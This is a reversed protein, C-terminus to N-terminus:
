NKEYKANEYHSLQQQIFISSLTKFLYIFNVPRCFM